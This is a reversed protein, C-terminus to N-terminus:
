KWKIWEPEGEGNKGIYAYKDPHKHAYSHEWGSIVEPNDEDEQRAARTPRPAANRTPPAANQGRKAAPGKGGRGSM